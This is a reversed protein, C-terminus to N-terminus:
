IAYKDRYHSEAVARSQVGATDDDPLRQAPVAISESM